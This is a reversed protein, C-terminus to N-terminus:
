PPTEKAPAQDTEPTSSPVVSRVPQRREMVDHFARLTSAVDPLYPNFQVAQLAKLESLFEAVAPDNTDFYTQIWNRAIENSEQYSNADNNLLGLRMAELELRLNQILFYQEQIAILPPATSREHRIVLIDKFQEWAATSFRQWWPEQAVEASEGVGELHPKVREKLTALQAQNRLALSNVRQEMEVVKHALASRDPLDVGRLSAINEAIMGQVSLFASENVGKLRQGAV